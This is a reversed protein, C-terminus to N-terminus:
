AKRRKRGAMVAGFCAMALLGLSMPEPTYSVTGDFAAVLLDNYDKDSSSFPLDEWCMLYENAHLMYNGNTDFLNAWTAESSYAVNTVPDIGSAWSFDTGVPLYITKLHDEGSNRGAESYFVQGSLEQVQIYWGIPMHGSLDGQTVTEFRGGSPPNGGDFVENLTSADAPDYWGTSSHYSAWRQLWVLSVDGSYSALEDNAIATPMSYTTTGEPLGYIYTNWWETLTPEAGSWPWASTTVLVLLVV